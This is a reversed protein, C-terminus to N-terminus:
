KNTEIRLKELPIGAKVVSCPLGDVDGHDYLDLVRLARAYILSKGFTSSLDPSPFFDGAKLSMLNPSHRLAFGVEDETVFCSRCGIEDLLVCHSSLAILSRNSCGGNGSIDIKHLALLKFSLKEM